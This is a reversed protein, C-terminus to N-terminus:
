GPKRNASIPVVRETSSRYTHPEVVLRLLAPIVRWHGSPNCCVTATKRNLRTIEGQLTRGDETTFEVRMDVSFRAICSRASSITSCMKRESVGSSPERRVASSSGIKEFRMIPSWVRSAVPRYIWCADDVLRVVPYPEPLHGSSLRINLRRDKRVTPKACRAHRTRECRGGTSKWEGGEFSELLEKEGADLKM